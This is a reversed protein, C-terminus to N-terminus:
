LVCIFSVSVGVKYTVREKLQKQKEMRSLYSDSSSRHIPRATNMCQGSNMEHEKGTPPNGIPPLVPYSGLAQSSATTLTRPVNQPVQKIHVEDPSWNHDEGDCSLTLKLAGKRFCLTILPYFILREM